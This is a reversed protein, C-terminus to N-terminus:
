TQPPANHAARVTAHLSLEQEAVRMRAEIATQKPGDANGALVSTVVGVIAAISTTITSAIPATGHGSVVLYVGAGLLTVFVGSGVLVIRFAQPSLWPSTTPTISSPTSQDM